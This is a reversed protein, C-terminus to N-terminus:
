VVMYAEGFSIYSWMGHLVECIYLYLMCIPRGAGIYMFAVYLDIQAWTSICAYIDIWGIYSYAYWPKNGCM